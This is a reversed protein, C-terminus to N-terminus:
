CGLRWGYALGRGTLWEVGVDIRRGRNVLAVRGGSSSGDPSFRIAALRTASANDATTTVTMTTGLPLIVPAAGDLRWTLRALDFTVGVVANGAISRGRALRLAGSIAQAASRLELAPSRQPGRSVFIGLVLGLITLVVLVEILTFGATGGGLRGSRNKPRLTM